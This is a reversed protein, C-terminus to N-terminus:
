LLNMSMTSEDISIEYEVQMRMARTEHRMTYKVIDEM